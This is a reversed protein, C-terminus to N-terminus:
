YIKPKATFYFPAQRATKNKSLPSATL